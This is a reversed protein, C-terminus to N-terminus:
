AQCDVDHNRGRRRPRVSSLCGLCSPPSWRPSFLGLPRSEPLIYIYIYMYTIHRIMSSKPKHQKRNLCAPVHALLRHCEHDAKLVECSPQSHSCECPLIKASPLAAATPSPSPAAPSHQSTRGSHASRRAPAPNANRHQSQLALASTM